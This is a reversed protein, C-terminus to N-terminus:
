CNRIECDTVETSLLGKQNEVFEHNKAWFMFFFQVIPCNQLVKQCNFSKRWYGNQFFIWYHSCTKVLLINLLDQLIGGSYFDIMHMMFSLSKLRHLLKYLIGQRFNTQIKKGSLFWSKSPRKQGLFTDASFRKLNSNGSM